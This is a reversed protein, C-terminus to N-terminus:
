NERSGMPEPNQLWEELSPLPASAMAAAVFPHERNLRLTYPPRDDATERQSVIIQLRRCAEVLRVAEDETIPFMPRGYTMGLALYRLTLFEARGEIDSITRILWRQQDPTLSLLSILGQETSPPLDGGLADGLPSKAPPLPKEEPLWYTGGAGQIVGQEIAALLFAEFNPFGFPGLAFHPMTRRFAQEIMGATRSMPSYKLGRIAAPLLRMPERGSPATGAPRDRLPSSFRPRDGFERRPALGQPRLLDSLRPAYQSFDVPEEDGGADDVPPLEAPRRVRVRSIPEQEPIPHRMLVPGAAAAPAVPEEAARRRPIPNDASGPPPPPGDAVPLDPAPPQKLHMGPHDEAEVAVGRRSAPASAAAPLDREAVEVDDWSDEAAGRRHDAPAPEVEDTTAARRRRAAPAAAPAAAEAEATIVKRRGRKPPEPEDDGDDEAAQVPEEAARKTKRATKKAPAAEEAEEAKAAKTARRKPAPADDDEPEVDVAGDDIGSEERSKLHALLDPHSEIGLSLHRLAEDIQRGRNRITGLAENAQTLLNRLDRIEEGLARWEQQIDRLAEVSIEAPREDWPEEPELEFQAVLNRMVAPTIPFPDRPRWAELHEIFQQVDTFYWVWSHREVEVAFDTLILLRPFVQPRVDYHWPHLPDELAPLNAAIWDQCKNATYQLGLLPNTDGLPTDYPDWYYAGDEETRIDWPGHAAGRVPADLHQTGVMFMASQEGALRLVLAEAMRTTRPVNFGVCVHYHDPLERLAQATVPDLASEVGIHFRAM